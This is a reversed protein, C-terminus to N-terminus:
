SRLAGDLTRAFATKEDGSDISGIFHEVLQGRKGIVFTEPVAAVDYSGAIKGSPDRVMTYTLGRKRAFRLADSSVDNYDVGVFVVGRGRYRQWFRELTHAEAKCPICWTAWFNVVRVRGHLSGLAFRGSGDLRQADFTPAAAGVKPPKTQHVVKWVLLGLLTVVGALALGQVGRKLAGAM